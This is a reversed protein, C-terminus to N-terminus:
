SGREARGVVDRLRDVLDTVIIGKDLYDDALAVSDVNVIDRPYASVMVVKTTPSEARVQRLAEFGSMGPMEIDMLVLDPSLERVLRVAERGDGAVGVVHFDDEDDLLLRILDRVDACDDV